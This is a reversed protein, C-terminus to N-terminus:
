WCAPLGSTSSTALKRAAFHSDGIRGAAWINEEGFRNRAGSRYYVPREVRNSRAMKTPCKEPGLSFAVIANPPFKSTEKAIREVEEKLATYLHWMGLAGFIILVLALWLVQKELIKKWGGEGPEGNAM